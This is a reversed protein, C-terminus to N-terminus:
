NWTMFTEQSDVHYTKQKYVKDKHFITFGFKQQQLDIRDQVVLGDLCIIEPYVEM